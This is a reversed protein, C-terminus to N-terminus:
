GGVERWSLGQDQDAVEIEGPQVGLVSALAAQALRPDNNRRSIHAAVVRQLRGRDLQALFEAAQANSLHGRESLIRQKIFAPYPGVRLLGPDHNAELVLADLGALAAVVAPDPWGIDTLVGLRRAGSRCVFQVPERADHPVAVPMMELCGLAVAEGAVLRICNTLHAASATGQTAYVQIGHRQACAQVGGAHDSHEHTVFIAALDGPALGCRGLRHLFPGPGFGNDILVRVRAAGEGAEVVLGNGGSGSGLSAFRLM